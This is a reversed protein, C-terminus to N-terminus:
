VKIMYNDNTRINNYYIDQEHAKKYLNNIMLSEIYFILSRLYQERNINNEIRYPLRNLYEMTLSYHKKMKDFKNNYQYYYFKNIHILCKDFAYKDLDSYFKLDNIYSSMEREYYDKKNMEDIGYRIYIYLILSIMLM